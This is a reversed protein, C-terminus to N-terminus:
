IHILSLLPPGEVVDAFDDVVGVLGLAAVEDLM